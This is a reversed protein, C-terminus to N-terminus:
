VLKRIKEFDDTEALIELTRTEALTFRKAGQIARKDPNLYDFWITVRDNKICPCADGRQSADVFGELQYDSIEYDFDPFACKYYAM